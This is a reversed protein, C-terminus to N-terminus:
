NSSGDQNVWQSVEGVQSPVYSSLWSVMPRLKIVMSSSTIWSSQSWSTMGIFMLALCVLLLGRAAGFAAGFIRDIFSLGTKDLLSRIIASVLMGLIMTIFFILAFALIYRMEPSSISILFSNGVLDSYRLGLIIAIVWVALSIAERVFGRLFSILASAGIVIIIVIDAISSITM